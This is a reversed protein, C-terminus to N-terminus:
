LRSVVREIMARSLAALEEHEEDSIVDSFRGPIAEQNSASRAPPPQPQAAVGTADALASGPNRRL